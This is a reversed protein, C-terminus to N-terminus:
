LLVAAAWQARAPLRFLLSHMMAHRRRAPNVARASHSHPGCLEASLCAHQPLCRPGRHHRDGQCGAGGEASRQTLTRAHTYPQRAHSNHTRTTRRRRGTTTHTHSIHQTEGRRRTNHTEIVGRERRNTVATCAREDPTEAAVASAESACWACVSVRLFLLSSCLPPVFWRVLSPPLSATNM